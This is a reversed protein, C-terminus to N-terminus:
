MWMRCTQQRSLPNTMKCSIHACIGRQKSMDRKETAAKNRQKSNVYFRSCTEEKNQKQNDTPNFYMILGGWGCCVSVKVTIEAFLQSLKWAEREVSLEWNSGTLFCTPFQSSLFRAPLFVFTVCVTLVTSSFLQYRDQLCRCILQDLRGAGATQHKNHRQSTVDVRRMADKQKCM